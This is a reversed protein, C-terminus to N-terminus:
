FRRFDFHYFLDEVTPQLIDRLMRVFYHIRNCRSSFFFFFHISKTDLDRWRLNAVVNGLHLRLQLCCFILVVVSYCHYSFTSSFTAKRTSTASCQMVDCELLAILSQVADRRPRVIVGCTDKHDCDFRDRENLLVVSDDLLLYIRWHSVRKINKSSGNM